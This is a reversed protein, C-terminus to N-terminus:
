KGEAKNIAQELITVSHHYGLKHGILVENAYKCAELLKPAALLESCSCKLQRAVLYMEKTYKNM